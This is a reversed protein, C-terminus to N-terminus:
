RIFRGGRRLVIYYYALGFAAGGLHAMHAVTDNPNKVAGYLDYVIFGSVALWAPLPIVFMVLFTTRPYMAAFLVSCAMASGSAGLAPQSAKIYALAQENTIIQHYQKYYLSRVTYLQQQIYPTIHSPGYRIYLIHSLSSILAGGLYVVVFRRTGLTYAVGSGLFYLSLCNFLLHQPSIQSFACTILTHLRGAYLNNLSLTFNNEMFTYWTNNGHRQYQLSQQWICWILVNLTCTGIVILKPDLNHFYNRRSRYAYQSRSQSNRGRWDFRTHTTTHLQKNYIYCLIINNHQTSQLPTVRHSVSSYSHWPIASATYQLKFTTHIPKYWQKYNYQNELYILSHHISPKFQHINHICYMKNPSSGNIIHLQNLM